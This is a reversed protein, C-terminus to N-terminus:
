SRCLRHFWATSIQILLHGIQFQVRLDRSSCFQRLFHFSPSPEDTQPFDRSHVRGTGCIYLSHRGMTRPSFQSTVQYLVLNCIMSNSSHRQQSKIAPHPSPPSSLLPGKNPPFLSLSTSSLHEDEEIVWQVHLKPGPAEPFDPLHPDEGLAPIQAIFPLLSSMALCFSCQATLTHAPIIQM